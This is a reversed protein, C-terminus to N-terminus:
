KATFDATLLVNRAAIDRHVLRKSVLYVLGDSIQWAFSILQKLTVDNTAHLPCPNQEAPDNICHAHTLLWNSLDGGACYELVLALRDGSLTTHGIM